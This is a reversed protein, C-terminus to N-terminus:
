DDANNAFRRVGLISVHRKCSRCSVVACEPHECRFLKEHENEMVIAYECYPCTELNKIGAAELEKRQVLALYSNLTKPTLAKKLESERFMAKCESPDM